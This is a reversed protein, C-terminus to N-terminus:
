LYCWKQCFYDRVLSIVGDHIVVGKLLKNKKASGHVHCCRSIDWFTKRTYCYHEKDTGAFQTGQVSNGWLAGLLSVLLAFLVAVLACVIVPPM